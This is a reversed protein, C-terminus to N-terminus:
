RAAPRERDFYVDVRMGIALPGPQVLDVIVDVADIDTRGTSGRAGLQSPEVLPAISSVTGAFERAPFAAARVLAPQGIKIGTVDREDLEARVRLAALNALLMLPQGASPAALEGNKVNVQLVTGDVPARITMKALAARAVALEARAASLQAETLTPLPAADRIKQLEARRQSLDQQARAFAARAATLAADPEGSLRFKAAVRDVAEQAEFVATEADAVADEAKRRDAAKGSASKENRARRRVDVQADAAALRAQLEDDKLQILPEGVFVTDNAKVQVHSVLGVVPAAIRILGSRPEVRGPAVALWSKDSGPSTTKATAPTKHDIDLAIGAIAAAALVVGFVILTAAKGKSM